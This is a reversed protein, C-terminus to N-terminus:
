WFGLLKEHSLMGYSSQGMLFCAMSRHSIPNRQSVVIGHSEWGSPVPPGYLTMMIMDMM